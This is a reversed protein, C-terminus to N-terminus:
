LFTLFSIHLLDGGAQRIVQRGGCDSLEITTERRKVCHPQLVVSNRPRLPAFDYRLVSNSIISTEKHSYYPTHSSSM